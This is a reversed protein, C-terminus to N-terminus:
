CCYWYKGQPYGEFLDYNTFVDEDEDKNHESESKAPINEDHESGGYRERVESDTMSTPSQM